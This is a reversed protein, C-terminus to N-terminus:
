LPLTSVLLAVPLPGFELAPRLKAFPSLANQLRSFDPWADATAFAAPRRCAAVIATAGKRHRAFGILDPGLDLGEYDGHTFLDAHTARIALLKQTLALKVQGSRWDGCLAAWDPKDTLAAHRAAYDVPRRNDPDVFSLDWFESGQYFDPM